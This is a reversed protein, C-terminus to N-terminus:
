QYNIASMSEQCHRNLFSQVREQLRAPLTISPAPNVNRPQWQDMWASPDDKLDLFSLVRQLQPKPNCFLAESSLILLKRTPFHTMWRRLHIDYCSDLLAGSGFAPLNALLDSNLSELQNLEQELCEALNGKFGELRQLHQLWSIARQLPDRLLLIALGNPILTAFREAAHPHSFYNPTAEGRLIGAESRFTPFQAFYWDSGLKFRGDFFHLEKRPHCWLAPLHNLWHLLSTTGGKPVGIIIFDPPTPLQDHGALLDSRTGLELSAAQRSEKISRTINGQRALYHALLQRPLSRQPQQQSLYEYYSVLEPILSDSCRTFQLENHIHFPEPNKQLSALFWRAAQDFKGQTRQLQGLRYAATAHCGPIRFSRVLYQEAESFQGMAQAVQARLLWAQLDALHWNVLELCRQALEAHRYKLLWAASAIASGQREAPSIAEQLLPLLWLHLQDFESSEAAAEMSQQLQLYSISEGAKMLKLQDRLSM